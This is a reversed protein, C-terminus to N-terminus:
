RFRRFLPDVDDDAEDNWGGVPGAPLGLEELGRTTAPDLVDRLSAHLQAAANRAAQGALALVERALADPGMRMAAPSIRVDRLMGGPAVEVAVAGDGSSARGVVPGTRALQAAVRQRTEDVRRAAAQVAETVQRDLDESM